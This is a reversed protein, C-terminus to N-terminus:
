PTFIKVSVNNPYKHFHIVVIHEYRQAMKAISSTLSAVPSDQMHCAAYLSRADVAGEFQFNGAFAVTQGKGLSDCAVFPFVDARQRHADFVSEQFKETFCGFNRFRMALSQAIAHEIVMEM